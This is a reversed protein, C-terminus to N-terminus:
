NKNFYILYANLLTKLIHIPEQIACLLIGAASVFLYYKNIILFIIVIYLKNSNNRNFLCESNNNDINIMNYQSYTRHGV